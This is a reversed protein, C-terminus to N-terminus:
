RTILTFILRLSVFFALLTPINNYHNWRKEFNTREEGLMIDTMKDVNIKQMHANLPLYYWGYSYAM